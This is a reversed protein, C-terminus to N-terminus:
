SINRSRSSELSDQTTVNAIVWGPLLLNEREREWHIHSKRVNGSSSQKELSSMLREREKQRLVNPNPNPNPNGLSVISLPSSVAERHTLIRSVYSVVVVCVLRRREEM